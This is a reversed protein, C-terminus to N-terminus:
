EADAVQLREADAVQSTQSEEPIREQPMPDPPTVDPTVDPVQLPQQPLEEPVPDQTRVLQPGLLETELSAAFNRSLKDFYAQQKKKGNRFMECIRHFMVWALRPDSQKARRNSLGGVKIEGTRSFKTQGEACPERQNVARIVRRAYAVKSAAKTSGKARKDVAKIMHHITEGLRKRAVPQSCGAKIETTAIVLAQEDESLFSKRGMKTKEIQSIANLLRSRSLKGNDYKSRLEKASETELSELLKKMYTFYRNNSIGYEALANLRTMTKTIDALLAQQLEWATFASGPPCWAKTYKTAWRYVQKQKTTEMLPSQRSYM